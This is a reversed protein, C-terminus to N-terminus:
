KKISLLLGYFLLLTYIIGVLLLMLCTWIGLYGCFCCLVLNVGLVSLLILVNFLKAHWAKAWKYILPKDQCPVRMCRLIVGMVFIVVYYIALAKGEAVM